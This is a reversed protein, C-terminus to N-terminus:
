IAVAIHEGIKLAHRGISSEFINNWAMLVFDQIENEELPHEDLLQQTIGFWQKKSKGDYPSKAM